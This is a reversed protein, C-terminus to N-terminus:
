RSPLGGAQTGGSAAPPRRLFWRSLAVALLAWLAIGFGLLAGYALFVTYASARNFSTVVAPPVVQDFLRFFWRGVLIGLAESCAVLLILGWSRRSM